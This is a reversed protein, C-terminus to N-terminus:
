YKRYTKDDRHTKDNDRYTKDNDRYTKDDDRYHRDERYPKEEEMRDNDRDVTWNDWTTLAEYQRKWFGVGQNKLEVLHDRMKPMENGFWM